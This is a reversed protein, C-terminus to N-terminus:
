VHIVQGNLTDATRHIFHQGRTGPHHVVPGFLQGTARNRLSWPGHSRIVHPRTDEEVYIAYDVTPGIIISGDPQRLSRISSRLRGSPPLPFDGARRWRPRDQGAQWRVGKHTAGAGGYVPGKSRGSPLPQAYVPYVPSVPCLRKMTVVARGALRDLAAAVKRDLALGSLARDDWHVTVNVDAM